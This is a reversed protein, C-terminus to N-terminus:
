ALQWEKTTAKAKQAVSLKALNTAGFTAIKNYNLEYTGAVMNTSNTMIMQNNSPIDAITYSRNTGGINVIVVQGVRFIEQFNAHGVLASGDSLVANWTTLAGVINVYVTEGATSRLDLLRDIIFTEVESATLNPTYSAAASLYISYNWRDEIEIKMPQTTASQFADGIGVFSISPKSIYLYSLSTCANFVNTGNITLNQLGAPFIVSEITTCTYFVNTGNITLNQLGAPFIIQTLMTNNAFIYLGSITLNQLGVPFVLSSMLSLRFADAQSLVLTKDADPLTELFAPFRFNNIYNNQLQQSQQVFKFTNNVPDDIGNTLRYTKDFSLMQIYCGNMNFGQISVNYIFVWLIKRVWTFAPNGIATQFAHVPNPSTSSFVIWRTSFGANGQYGGNVTIISDSITPSVAGNGSILILKKDNNNQSNHLTIAEIITEGVHVTLNVNGVAGTVNAEIRVVDTMWTMQGEYYAKVSPLEDKTTDFYYLGTVSTSIGDSMDFRNGGQLYVKTISKPILLAYKYPNLVDNVSGIAETLDHWDTPIGPTSQVNIESSIARIKTAVTVAPDTNEVNQGKDRVAQCIISRDVNMENILTETPVMSSTFDIEITLIDGAVLAPLTNPYTIVSGVVSVGVKAGSSVLLEDQTENYVLRIDHANFSPWDTVTISRSGNVFSYSGSKILERM